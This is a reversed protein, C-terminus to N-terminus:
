KLYFDRRRCIYVVVNPFILIDVNKACNCYNQNFLYFLFFYLFIELFYALEGEIAQSVKREVSYLQMAGAVRHQSASIGVLLLWQQKADCRYNIIQCGNLSSHRDFMKIPLSDGEMSWHYVSSETVLALSNLSIWKWFVVDETMTHAKMKSKM